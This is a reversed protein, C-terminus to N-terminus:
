PLRGLLETIDSELRQQLLRAAAAAEPDTPLTRGRLLELARELAERAAPYRGLQMRARGLDILPGYGEPALEAARELEPLAAGAEGNELLIRGKLHRSRPSDPDAVLARETFYLAGVLDGRAEDLDALGRLRPANAPDLEYLVQRLAPLHRAHLEGDAAAYARELYPRATGYSEQQLLMSGLNYHALFHDPALECARRLATLGEERDGLQWLTMGRHYSALASRPAKALAADFAVLAAGLDGARTAAGGALLDPEPDTPDLVRIREAIALAEEIWGEEFRAKALFALTGTDDPKLALAEEFSTVAQPLEGREFHLVGLNHWPPAFRPQLAIAKRFSEEAADREGAELQCVGLGTLVQEVPLSARLGGAALNAEERQLVRELLMEFITRATDTEGFGDVEAELLYWWAKGLNAQLYDYETRPITPDTRAADLLDLARDYHRGAEVFADEDGTELYRARLVEGLQWHVMPYDPHAAVAHRFLQEQGQWPALRLHVGIPMTVLVVAGVATTWRPRTAVVLALALSLGLVALYLYRDGYPTQGTANTAVLVPLLGAPVLLLAGLARRSGAALAAAGLALFLGAGVWARVQLPDASTTVERFPALPTAGAGFLKLVGLGLVELRVMLARGSPGLESGTRALGGTLEGFVAMRLVLWVLAAGALVALGPLLPAREDGRRPRVRLDLVLVVAPLALALEKSLLAALFWAGAALPLGRSGRARWGLWADVCALGFLGFLPDNVASIWAVSEVHAPHLAFALAGVFAPWVGPVLRRLVRWAVLSAGLHLLLSLAHFPLTYAASGGLAFGLALTLSTLPRWHGPALDPDGAVEPIGSWLPESVLQWASGLSRLDQDRAVLTLDDWAFGGTLGGAFSLLTALVFVVWAWAPPRDPASPDLAPPPQPSGEVPM